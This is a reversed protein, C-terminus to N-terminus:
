HQGYRDYRRRDARDAIVGAIRGCCAGAFLPLHDAADRIDAAGHSACLGALRDANRRSRCSDPCRHWFEVDRDDRRRYRCAAVARGQDSLSLSLHGRAGARDASLHSRSSRDAAAAAGHLHPGGAFQRLRDHGVQLRLADVPRAEAHRRHDAARGDPANRCVSIRHRAGEGATGYPRGNSRNRRFDDCPSRRYHRHHLRDSRFRLSRGEPRCRCDRFFRRSGPYPGSRRRHRFPCRWPHQFVVRPPLQDFKDHFIACM